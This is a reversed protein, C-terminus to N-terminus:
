KPKEIADAREGARDSAARAVLAAVIAPLAEEDPPPANYDM